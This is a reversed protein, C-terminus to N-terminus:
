QIKCCIAIAEPDVGQQECMIGVLGTDVHPFIGKVKRDGANCGGGGGTLITGGPCSVSACTSAFGGADNCGTSGSSVVRVCNLTQATSPSCIVLPGTLALVGVACIRGFLPIFREIM